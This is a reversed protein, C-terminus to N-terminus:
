TPNYSHKPNASLTREARPVIIALLRLPIQVHLRILLIVLLIALVIVMSCRRLLLLAVRVVCSIGRIPVASPNSMAM